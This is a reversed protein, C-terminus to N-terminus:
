FSRGPRCTPGGPGTGEREEAGDEDTAALFLSLHSDTGLAVACGKRHRRNGNHGKKM